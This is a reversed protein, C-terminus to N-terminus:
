LKDTSDKRGIDEMTLHAVATMDMTVMYKIAVALGIMNMAGYYNGYYIRTAPISLAPTSFTSPKRLKLM